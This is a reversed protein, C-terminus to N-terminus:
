RCVLQEHCSHACVLCPLLTVAHSTMGELDMKLVVYDKPRLNERLLRLLNLTLARVKVVPRPAVKRPGGRGRSRRLPSDLEGDTGQSNITYEIQAGDCTSLARELHFTPPRSSFGACHPM